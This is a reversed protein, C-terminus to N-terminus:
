LTPTVPYAYKKYTKKRKATDVHPPKIDKRPKIIDNRIILSNYKM